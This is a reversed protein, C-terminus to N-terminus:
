HTTEAVETLAVSIAAVALAALGIALTVVALNAWRYKRHAVLANSQVQHAIERTLADANATLTALVDGYAPFDTKYKRAIHRFFLLNSPEEQQWPKARLRPLLALASFVGAVLLAAASVVAAVKLTRSPDQQPHVRNFLLTGTAGTVALTAAVKAEAHRIWDNVLSLAKWAQDRQSAPPLEEVPCPRSQRCIWSM